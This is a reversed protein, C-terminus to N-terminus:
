MVDDPIRVNMADACATLVEDVSGIQMLREFDEAKLHGAPVLDMRIADASLNSRKGRVITLLNRYDWERLYAGVVLKCDGKSASLISRFASAMNAYTAYELLSLGSHKDAMDTIEKSYGAESIYRSIEPVSMALLKNYDEAKLIKSKKAKVRAATYSYNGSGSRRFM